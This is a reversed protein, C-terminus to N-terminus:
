QKNVIDLVRTLLVSMIYMNPNFPSEPTKVEKGTHIHYAVDGAVTPVLVYTNDIIVLMAEELKEEPLAKLGQLVKVIVPYRMGTRHLIVGLVAISLDPITYNDQDPTLRDLFDQFEVENEILGIEALFSALPNEDGGPQVQGVTTDAKAM